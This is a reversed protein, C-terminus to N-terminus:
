FTQVGLRSVKMHRRFQRESSAMLGFQGAIGLGNSGTLRALEKKSELSSIEMARSANSNLSDMQMSLLRFDGVASGLKKYGSDNATLPRPHRSTREQSGGQSRMVENRDEQKDKLLAELSAVKGGGKSEKEDNQKVGMPVLGRAQTAAFNVLSQKQM